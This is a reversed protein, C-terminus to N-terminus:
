LPLINREELKIKIILFIVYLYHFWVASLLIILTYVMWLPADTDGLGRQKIMDPPIPKGWNIEEMDELNGYDDNEEIKVVITLVGATDGPMGVPFELTAKGNADSKESAINLLSFTGKIYFLIDIGEIPIVSDDLGVEGAYVEIFKVADKQFFSVNLNAQKIMVSKKAKKYSEGGKYEAEFTMLGVTDKFIEQDDRITFKAVGKVNTPIKGLLIRSTDNVSYFSVVEGPLPIYSEQRVILTAVLNQTNNGDNFYELRIRTTLLEAKQGFLDGLTALVLIGLVIIRKCMRNM